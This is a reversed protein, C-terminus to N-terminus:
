VVPPGDLIEKKFKDRIEQDTVDILGVKALRMIRMIFEKKMASSLKGYTFTFEEKKFTDGLNILLTYELMERIKLSKQFGVFAIEFFEILQDLTNKKDFEGTQLLVSLPVGLIGAQLKAYYMLDKELDMANKGYELHELKFYYPYAASITKSDSLARALKEAQEKMSPNPPHFEDGYRVLPVPFGQAYAWSGKGKEINEKTTVDSYLPEIFGIGMQDDNLQRLTIHFMEHKKFPVIKEGTIEQQWGIPKGDEGYEIEDLSDKKFDMTKYDVPHYQVINNSGEARVLEIFCNGTIGMHLPAMELTVTKFDTEDLIKDIAKQVEENKSSAEFSAAEICLQYINIGRHLVPEHIYMNELKDFPVRTIINAPDDPISKRKGIGVECYLTKAGRVTPRVVEPKKNFFRGM